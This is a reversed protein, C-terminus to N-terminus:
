YHKRGSTNSDQWPIHHLLYPNMFIKDEPLSNTKLQIKIGYFKAWGQPKCKYKIPTLIFDSYVFTQALRQITGYRFRYQCFLASMHWAYPPADSLARLTYLIQIYIFSFDIFQGTEVPHSYTQVCKHWSPKLRVFV